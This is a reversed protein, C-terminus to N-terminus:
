LIISASHHGNNALPLSGLLTRCFIISVLGFPQHLTSALVQNTCSAAHGQTDAAVLLYRKRSAANLLAIIRVRTNPPTNPFTVPNRKNLTVYFMVTHRCTSRYKSTRAAGAARISMFVLLICLMKPSRSNTCHSHLACSCTSLRCSRTSLRCSPTTFRCSCTSLSCSRTSLRCSPTTFRYSCTPM